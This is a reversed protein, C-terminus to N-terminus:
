LTSKLEWITNRWYSMEIMVIGGLEEDIKLQCSADNEIQTTVHCSSGVSEEDEECEKTYVVTNAKAKLVKKCSVVLEVRQKMRSPVISKFDKQIMPSRLTTVRLYSRQHKNNKKKLPGLREFVSTRVTPKGLRDFISPPKNSSVCEDEITIYNNSVRRISIRM